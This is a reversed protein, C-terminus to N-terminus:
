ESHQGLKNKLFFQRTAFTVSIPFYCDASKRQSKIREFIEFTDGNSVIAVVSLTKRQFAYKSFSNSINVARSINEEPNFSCNKLCNETLSLIPARFEAFNLIRHFPELNLKLVLTYKISLNLQIAFDEVLRLSSNYLKFNKLCISRYM